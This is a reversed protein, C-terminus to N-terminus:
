TNHGKRRTYPPLSRKRTWAHPRAACRDCSPSRRAPRPRRLVSHHDGPFILQIPLDPRDNCVPRGPPGRCAQSGRTVLRNAVASAAHRVSAALASGMGSARGRKARHHHQRVRQAALPWIVAMCLGSGGPGCRTFANSRGALRSPQRKGVSPARRPRGLRRAGGRHTLANILRSRSLAETAAISLPVYAGLTPRRCLESPSGLV